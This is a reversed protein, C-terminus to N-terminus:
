RAALAHVGREMRVSHTLMNSNLMDLYSLRLFTDLFRCSDLANLSRGRVVADKGESLPGQPM